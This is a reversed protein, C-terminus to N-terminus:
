KEENDDINKNSIHVHQLKIIHERVALVSKRRLDAPEM